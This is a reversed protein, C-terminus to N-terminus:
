LPVQSTTKDSDYGESSMLPVVASTNTSPSRPAAPMGNAAM